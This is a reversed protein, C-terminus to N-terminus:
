DVEATNAREGASGQALKMAEALDDAKIRVMPGGSLIKNTSDIRKALDDNTAKVRRTPTPETPATPVPATAPAAPGAGVSPASPAMGFRAGFFLRQLTGLLTTKQEELREPQPEGGFTPIAARPTTPLGMAAAAATGRPTGWGFNGSLEALTKLSEATLTDNSTIAKMALDIKELNAAALKGIPGETMAAAAFPARLLELQEAMAVRAAPGFEAGTRAATRAEDLMPQITALTKEFGVGFTEQFSKPLKAFEGGLKEITGPRFPEIKEKLVGEIRAAAELFKAGAEDGAARLRSIQSDQESVTAGQLKELDTIDDGFDVFWPLITALLSVILGVGGFAIAAIRAARSFATVGVAAGRASVGVVSLANAQMLLAATSRQTEGTIGGIAARVLQLPGMSAVNAATLGSMAVLLSRIPILGFSMAGSFLMWAARAGATVAIWSTLILVSKGLFGFVSGLLAGFPGLADNIKSVGSFVSTFVRVVRDAVLVLDSLAPTLSVGIATALLGVDVQLLQLQQGLNERLQIRAKEAIIDSANVIEDRLAFFKQRALDVNGGSERMAKEIANALGAFPIVARTGVIGGMTQVVDAMNRGEEAAKFMVDSLQLVRGTAKDVTSIGLAAAIEERKAVFTEYARRVQTGAIAAAGSVDRTKALVFAFDEFVPKAQVVGSTTRTVIDSLEDFDIASGAAAVALQNLRHSVEDAELGFSSVLSFAADTVKSLDTNAVSALLAATGLSKLAVDAELGKKSLETFGRIVEPLSTRSARSITVFTSMSQKGFEEVTGGTGRAFARMDAMADQFEIAPRLLGAFAHAMQRIVGLTLFAPFAGLFATRTRGATAVATDGLRKVNRAASATGPASQDVFRFVIELRGIANLAM